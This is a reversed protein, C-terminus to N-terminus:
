RVFRNDAWTNAFSNQSSVELESGSSAEFHNGRIRNHSASYLHVLLPHPIESADYVENQLVQSNRCFYLKLISGPADGTDSDDPLDTKIVNGRFINNDGHLRIMSAGAPTPVGNDVTLDFTNGEVVLPLRDPDSDENKCIKLPNIYGRYITNDRLVVGEPAEVCITYAFDRPGQVGGGKITCGQILVNRSSHSGNAKVKDDFDLTFEDTAEFVCGIIKIDHYGQRIPTRRNCHAVLGAGPAGTDHGGSGNSVGVHCGQFTIHHVHGYPGPSYEELIINCYSADTTWGGFSREVECDRFTVYSCSHDDGLMIPVTGRFRCDRFTTEVANPGNHTRKGPDGIRLGEVLDNSSFELGGKIWSSTAGAGLVLVGRPITLTGTRYTGAPVSVGTGRNGAAKLAANCAATDDSAGDGRAGYTRVNRLKASQLTVIIDALDNAARNLRARTIRRATADYGHALYTTVLTAYSEHARTAAAVARARVNHVTAIGDPRVWARNEGPADTDALVSREYRAHMRSEGAAADTHLPDCLDAYYHCLMAVAKSAAQDDGQARAALAQQYWYTVRDPGAGYKRGWVDYAHYRQDRVVTDPDDTFPLAADLDLWGAGKAAALDHAETLVWDHTDFADAASKWAQGQQAFALLLTLLFVLM